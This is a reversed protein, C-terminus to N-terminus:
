RDPDIRYGEHCGVCTTIVDSMKKSLVPVAEEKKAATALDGFGDHMAMGAQKFDLPLKTMLSMPPEADAHGSVKKAAAAVKARDEMALAETIQQVAILMKRMEALVFDRESGSLLIATRGDSSPATRGKVFLMSAGLATVIWLAIAAVAMKNPM